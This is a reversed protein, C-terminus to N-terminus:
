IGLPSFHPRTLWGWRMGTRRTLRGSAFAGMLQRCEAGGLFLFRHRGDGIMTVMILPTERSTEHKPECTHALSSFEFLLFRLIQPRGAPYSTVKRPGGRVGAGM